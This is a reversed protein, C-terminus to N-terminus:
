EFLSILMRSILWWWNGKNSDSYNWLKVEWKERNIINNLHMDSFKRFYICSFKNCVYLLSYLQEIFLNFVAVLVIVRKMKGLRSAFNYLFRMQIVFLRTYQYSMRLRWFALSAGNWSIQNGTKSSKKSSIFTISCCLTLLPLKM